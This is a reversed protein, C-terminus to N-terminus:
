SSPRLLVHFGSVLLEEEPLDRYPKALKGRPTPLAEWRDMGVVEIAFGASEFAALIESYRLRNTYFGSKTMWPREWVRDSFRLNNLADSLHDRLDVRHSCVGDAALVRRSEAVIATVDARRLHELVSHSWLFDVTRDPVKEFSALGGTLYSANCAALLLEFSLPEPLDEVHLGQNALFRNMRRYVELHSSAYAGSDILYYRSAGFARAALASCVSDGPGLELGVFGGPRGSLHTREFHRRFVGFAYQPRDMAGRQFLSLRRWVDYPVPLRALLLKAAIKLWWPLARKLGVAKTRVGGDTIEPRPRELSRM